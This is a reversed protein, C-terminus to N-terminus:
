YQNILKQNGGFRIRRGSKPQLVPLNPSIDGKAASQLWGLASYTPYIVHSKDSVRDEAMGCYRHTRLDPINKPSIRAHLHYLTIDICIMLLKQGRNDGATWSTTNTVLTGATVSYAVGTGWQSTSKDPFNNAVPDTGSINVELMAQHDLSTSSVLATYVKDKWFVKDGKSYYQQYDFISQPYAAFFKDYQSGLLNWKALTFAEPVTIATKCSYVSGGQLVLANLAYTKLPDYADADLYVTQGAKYTKTMDFKTISQFAQSVDYKQRLYSMCEEVAASQADALITLNGGTIQSLNDSQIQKAYDGYYLFSEM